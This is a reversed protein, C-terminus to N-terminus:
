SSNFKLEKRRERERPMWMPQVPWASSHCLTVMSWMWEAGINLPNKISIKQETSIKTQRNESKIRNNTSIASFPPLQSSEFTINSYHPYNQPFHPSNNSTNDVTISMLYVFWVTRGDYFCISASLFSYFYIFVSIRKFIYVYLCIFWVSAISFSFM